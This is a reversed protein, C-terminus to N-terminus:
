YRRRLRPGPCYGPVPADEDSRHAARRPHHDSLPRDAGSRQGPRHRVVQAGRDRRSPSGDPRGSGRRHGAGPRGGRGGEGADDVAQAHAREDRGSRSEAAHGSSHTGPRDVGVQGGSQVGGLHHRPVQAGNGALSGRGVVPRVCHGLHRAGIQRAPGGRSDSPNPGRDQAPERLRYASAPKARSVELWKDLLQGVTVNTRNFKGSEVESVLKGLAKAAARETGTFTRAVQRPKGTVPDPGVFARLQWHGPSRERM